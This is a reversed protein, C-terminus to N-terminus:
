KLITYYFDLHLKTLAAIYDQADLGDICKIYISHVCGTNKAADLDKRYKKLIEKYSYIKGDILFRDRGQILVTFLYGIGGSKRELKKQICPPIAPSLLEELREQTLILENQLNEVEQRTPRDSVLFNALFIFLLLFAIEALTYGIIGDSSESKM